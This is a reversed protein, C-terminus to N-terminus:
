IAGLETEIFKVANFMENLKRPSELTPILSAIYPSKEIFKMIKSQAIPLVMPWNPM